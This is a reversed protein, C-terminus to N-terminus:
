PKNILEQLVQSVEGLRKNAIAIEGAISQLEKNTEGVLIGKDKHSNNFMKELQDIDLTSPFHKLRARAALRVQKPLRPYVSPDLMDTMFSRAARLSNFMEDPLTM